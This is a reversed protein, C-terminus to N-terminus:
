LVEVTTVAGTNIGLMENLAALKIKYVIEADIM